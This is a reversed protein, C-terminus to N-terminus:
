CCGVVWHQFFPCMRAGPKIQLSTSAWYCLTFLCTVTSQAAFTRMWPCPGPMCLAMEGYPLYTWDCFKIWFYLNGVAVPISCMFHTAKHFSSAHRRTLGNSWEEKGLWSLMIDLPLTSILADYQIQRGSALTVVKKDKDVATM